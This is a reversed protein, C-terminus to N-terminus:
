LFADPHLIYVFDAQDWSQTLESLPHSGTRMTFSALELVVLLRSVGIHAKLGRLTSAIATPHHAFDEYVTVGRFTGHCMMRREVGKFSHLAAVAENMNVGLQQVATLAALANSVNHEGMMQWQLPVENENNYLINFSTGDNAVHIAQLTTDYGGFMEVSSWCGAHIVDEVHSDDAPIVVCGASPVTRLLQSFQLKIDEISRYIDAHDFEINNIVLTQPFYHMFKPRKDFFASDYEDAEIVFYQSKGLQATAKKDRMKGGILYGPQLGISQLIHIIMATTTSKGHTGSVAIVWRGALVNAAVWAPGSMYQIKNDIIYEMLSHGRSVVNGVIVLDVNQVHEINYGEYLTINEGQLVTSMPPKYEHDSGSVEHGLAKALQAVGAMYTGCIGLIHIKM